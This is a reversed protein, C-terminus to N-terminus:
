TLFTNPFEELWYEVTAQNSTFCHLHIRQSPPCAKRVYHLGALLVDSSYKDSSGRLHLVIVKDPRSLALMKKLLCDQDSWTYGPETRDLGIEGLAKVLPNTDLLAKIRTLYHEPCGVAKRPHVGVAIQWKGETLPISVLDEPDCFIMVGGVLEVVKKPSHKLPYNLIDEM